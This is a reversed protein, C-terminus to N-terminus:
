AICLAIVNLFTGLYLFYLVLYEDFIYIHIYRRIHYEFDVRMVYSEENGELYKTDENGTGGTGGTTHMGKLKVCYTNSYQVQLASKHWDRNKEVLVLM